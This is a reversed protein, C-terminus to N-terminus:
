TFTKIIQIVLVFFYEIVCEWPHLFIVSDVSGMHDASDGFREKQFDNIVEEGSEKCM